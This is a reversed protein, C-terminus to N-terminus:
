IVFVNSDLDLMQCRKIRSWPGIHFVMLIFISIQYYHMFRVFCGVLRFKKLHSDNHLIVPKSSYTVCFRHPSVVETDSEISIFYCRGGNYSLSHSMSGSLFVCTMPQVQKISAHVPRAGDSCTQVNRWVIFLEAKLHTYM